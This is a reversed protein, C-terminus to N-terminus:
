FKINRWKSSYTPAVNNLVDVLSSVNVNPGDSFIEEIEDGKADFFVRLLFSNPRRNNMTQFKEIAIAVDEKGGKVDTSMQDLGTRHYGYMVERYEKFTPSLMNDILMYRSQLGDEVKWGKFGEQQSYNVITQAQNLYEDGGKLKFTDADQGLIMYIHFALVSILNSEFQTPSFILNQFEAYNFTFNPDNYNYVPTSYSSGYVPRSSQVQISAKFLDSAYENVIIVMSCNIRESVKYSRSTWQTNNIFETLQKELTKFVQINENGTQQANVVVNCNLEQAAVSVSLCLFLVFLLNRM